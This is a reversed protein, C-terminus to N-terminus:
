FEEMNLWDTGIKWELKLPINQFPYKKELMVKEALEYIDELEDDVADFTASDHCQIELGSKMNEAIMIKDIDILSQLLFHFALGQVPTNYIMNRNIPGYRRFGSALEIYGHKNYFKLLSKQWAAVGSFMKWLDKELRQFHREPIDYGLKVFSKHVSKYYSGYFLAFVFSNKANFREEKTIDQKRKCFIKSAWDRHFDIDNRIFKMLVPDQSLMAMVRVEMAGYDSELFYKGLHPIICKRLKILEKDHAPINQFNPNESNSRYTDTLVWFSPHLIGNCDMKKLWNELYTGKFKNLKRINIINSIFSKIEKDQSAELLENMNDEDLSYNGVTSRQGIPKLKLISYFFKILQDSSNLNINQGQKRKWKKHIDSSYNETELNSIKSESWDLLNNLEERDVAVGRTEMNAFLNAADNLLKIGNGLKTGTVMESHRKSIVPLYRVDLCNYKAVSKLPMEKLRSHDVMDSYIKGTHFFVQVDLKATGKRADLVHSTHMTD